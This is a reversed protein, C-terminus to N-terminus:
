VLIQDNLIFIDDTQLKNYLFEQERILKQEQHHM